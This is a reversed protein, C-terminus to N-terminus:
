YWGNNQWFCWANYPSGYRHQIYALGDAMQATADGLPVNCPLKQFLGCAGSSSNVANPNGGSEHQIIWNIYYDDSQISVSKAAEVNSVPPTQAEALATASDKKAQLQKTLEEIRKANDQVEKSKSNLLQDKTQLKQITNQLEVKQKAQYTYGYVLTFVLLGILAFLTSIAIRKYNTHRVITEKRSKTSRKRM